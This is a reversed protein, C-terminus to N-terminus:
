NSQAATRRLRRPRARPPNAPLPRLGRAEEQLRLVEFAAADRLYTPKLGEALDKQAPTLESWPVAYNIGKATRRAARDALKIGEDINDRLGGPVEWIPALTHEAKRRRISEVAEVWADDGFQFVFATRRAEVVAFEAPLVLEDKARSIMDAFRGLVANPNLSLDHYLFHAM